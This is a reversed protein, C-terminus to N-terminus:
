QQIVRQKYHRSTCIIQISKNYQVYCIIIYGGVDNNGYRYVAFLHKEVM